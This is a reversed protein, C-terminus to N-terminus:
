FGVFRRARSRCHHRNGSKATNIQQFTLSDPRLVNIQHNADDRETEVKKTKPNVVVFQLLHVNAITVDPYYVETLAGSQL